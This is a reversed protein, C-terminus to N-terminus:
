PRAEEADGLRALASWYRTLDAVFDDLEGNRTPRHIGHAAALAVLQSLELGHWATTPRDPRLPTVTAM